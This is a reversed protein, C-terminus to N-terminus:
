GKRSVADSFKRVDGIHRKAHNVSLCTPCTCTADHKFKQGDVAMGEASGNQFIFKLRRKSAHGFREHWLDWSAACAYTTGLKSRVETDRSHGLQTECTRLWSLEEPALVEDLRLLYLGNREILRYRHGKYDFYSNGKEFHFTSGENCLMGVSVLNIPSGKIISVDKLVLPDLQRGDASESHFEFDGQELVPVKSGDATTTSFSAPRRNTFVNRDSFWHRNAGSDLIAVKEYRDTAASYCRAGYELTPVVFFSDGGGACLSSKVAHTSKAAYAVPISSYSDLSYSDHLSRTQCHFSGFDADCDPSTTPQSDPVIPATTSAADVAASSCCSCSTPGEVSALFSTPSSLDFCSPDDPRSRRCRVTLSSSDFPLLSTDQLINKIKQLTSGSDRRSVFAAIFQSLPSPISTDVGSAEPM